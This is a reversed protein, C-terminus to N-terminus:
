LKIKLGPLPKREQTRVNVSTLYEVGFVVLGAKGGIGMAPLTYSVNKITKDSPSNQGNKKLTL